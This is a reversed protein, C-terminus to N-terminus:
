KSKKTKKGRYKKKGARQKKGRTNKASRGKGSDRKLRQGHENKDCLEFDIKAEDLSVRVVTVRLRDGLRFRKGTREGSLQFRLPDFHYYDNGLSTVHVLGDIFIEDLQVFVGFEKVGSIVGDYQEGVKDQMFEAKLWAVVDRSADDARRETFSCREAIQDFSFGDPAVPSAPKGDVLQRIQRHVVLDSYRRIPSTFHTYVPYALAFHGIQETGYVAQSLSRLLVSQVMPAIDAKGSVATVLRAYDAAKPEDGGEIKLGMGSLFRRLDVLSEGTPGEHNRYIAQNGLDEQLFQAACINAALM